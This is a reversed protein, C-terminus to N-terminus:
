LSLIPKNFKTNWLFAGDNRTTEQIKRTMDQRKRDNRTMDRRKEDNKPGIKAWIAWFGYTPFTWLTWLGEM